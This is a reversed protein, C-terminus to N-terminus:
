SSNSWLPAQKEYKETYKQRYIMHGIYCIMAAMILDDMRGGHKGSYVETYENTDGEERKRKKIRKRKFDGAQKVLTAQMEAPTCIEDSGAKKTQTQLLPHFKVAHARLAHAFLTAMRKKTANTSRLGVHKTDEDMLYVHPIRAEIVGLAYNQSEFASNSEPVFVIKKGSMGPIRERIARLVRCVFDGHMNPAYLGTASFLDLDLIQM